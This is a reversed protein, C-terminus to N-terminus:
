LTWSDGWPARPLAPCLAPRGRACFTVESTLLKFHGWSNECAELKAGGFGRPREGGGTDTLHAPLSLCRLFRHASAASTSKMSM